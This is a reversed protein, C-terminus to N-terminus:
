SVYSVFSSYHDLGGEAAQPEQSTSTEPLQQPWMCVQRLSVHLWNLRHLGTAM